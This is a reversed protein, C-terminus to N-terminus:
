KIGGLSALFIEFASREILVLKLTYYTYTLAPLKGQMILDQVYGTTKCLINAIHTITLYPTRTLM